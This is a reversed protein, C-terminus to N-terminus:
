KKVWLKQITGDPYYINRRVQGTRLNHKAVEIPLGDVKSKTKAAEIAQKYIPTTTWCRGDPLNIAYLVDMNM